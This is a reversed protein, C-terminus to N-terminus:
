KNKHAKSAKKSEGAFLLNVAWIAISAICFGLLMNSAMSEMTLYQSIILVAVSNRFIELYAAFKRDEFIYGISTLSIMVAAISGLVTSQSLTQFIWNTYNNNTIIFITYKKENIFNRVQTERHSGINYIVLNILFLRTFQIVSEAM